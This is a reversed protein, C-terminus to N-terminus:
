KGHLKDQVEHVDNGDFVCSSPGPVSWRLQAHNAKPIKDDNPELNTLRMSKEDTTREDKM